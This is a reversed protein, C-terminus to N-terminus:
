EEVFYCYVGKNKVEIEDFMIWSINNFMMEFILGLVYLFEDIVELKGSFWYRVGDLDLNCYLKLM